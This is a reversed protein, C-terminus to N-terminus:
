TSRSDYSATKEDSSAPTQQRPEKKMWDFLFMSEQIHRAHASVTTHPLGLFRKTAVQTIELSNFRELKLKTLIQSVARGLSKEGNLAVASAKIESAMYFCTWGAESMRRDLGYGDLEKVIRWGNSYPESEVWLSDPFIVGEEILITGTTIREAM